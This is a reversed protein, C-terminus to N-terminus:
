WIMISCIIMNGDPKIQKPVLQGAWLQKEEYVYGSCFPCSYKQPGVPQNFVLLAAIVDM